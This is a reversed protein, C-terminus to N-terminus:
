RCRNKLTAHVVFGRDSFVGLMEDNSDTDQDPECENKEPRLDVMGHGYRSM